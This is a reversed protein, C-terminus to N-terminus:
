SGRYYLRFFSWERGMGSPLDRWDVLDYPQDPNERAMAATHEVKGRDFWAPTQLVIGTVTEVRIPQGIDDGNQNQRLIEFYPRTM